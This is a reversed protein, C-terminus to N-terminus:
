FEIGERADAGTDFPHKIKKIESIYDAKQAFYENPNRGTLVLETDACNEVVTKVLEMDILRLNVAAFIEDLVLMDLKDLSSLAEKLNKNHCETIEAKDTDSMSNYFGYNKDCRAVTIDTGNLFSIEGSESGKLFQIIHVKKGHGAMRFALGMAATTKGKGDGCYIHIM